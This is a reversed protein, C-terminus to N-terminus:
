PTIDICRVAMQFGTPAASVQVEYEWNSLNTANPRSAQVEATGYDTIKYGGGIAVDGIDCSLGVGNNGTSTLGIANTVTYYDGVATSSSQSAWAVGGGALLLTATTGVAVARRKLM